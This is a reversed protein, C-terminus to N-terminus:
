KRPRRGGSLTRDLNLIIYCGSAFSNFALGATRDVRRGRLNFADLDTPTTLPISIKGEGRSYAEVMGWANRDIMLSAIVLQAGPKGTIGILLGPSENPTESWKNVYGSLQWWRDVRERTQVDTPPNALDYGVRGDDFNKDNVRVFLVPMPSDKQVLIFDDLQLKEKSPREAFNDPVGLPRFRARSPGQAVNFDSGLASMVATEVLRGIEETEFPGAIEIHLKKNKLVLDNLKPNHSKTPHSNAREASAGYGVYCAHGREDRYIYVYHSM